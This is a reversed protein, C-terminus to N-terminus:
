SAVWVRTMPPVSTFTSDHYSLSHPKELRMSSMVMASIAAFYAEDDHLLLLGPPHGAKKQGRQRRLRKLSDRTAVNAGSGAQAAKNSSLMGSRSRSRAMLGRVISALSRSEIAKM